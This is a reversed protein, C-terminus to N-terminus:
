KVYGKLRLVVPSGEANGYVSVTKNFYGTDNANYTIEIKTSADPLVPKKSYLVDTCGCSAKTDFILFPVDGTNHITATITVPNGQQLTGLDFETQGVEIRTKKATGATNYEGRSIQSLYMRKIRVNNVPNGIYIVKNDKDLLFCQFEQRSPFHNIKDTRDDIDIYVPIDIGDRRLLYSIEKRDRPHFIFLVPVSGGTLTDVEKIFERWKHLQLKCGTCGTSDVYMLIKYDSVPIQYSLTDKGYRTFVIDEPFIIEREQWGAVIGAIKTKQNDRCSLFLFGFGISVIIFINRM